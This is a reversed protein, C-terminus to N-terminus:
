NSCWGTCWFNAPKIQPQSTYPLCSISTERGCLRKKRGRREEREFTLLYSTHGFFSWGNNIYHSCNTHCWHLRAALSLPNSHAHTFLSSKVTSTLPPWLHWQTLTYQTAMVNLIVSHTSCNDADFKTNLKFTGGHFCNPHGSPQLQPCSIIPLKMVVVCRSM